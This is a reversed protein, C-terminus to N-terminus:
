NSMAIPILMSGIAVVGPLPKSCAKSTTSGLVASCPKGIIKLEECTKEPAGSANHVSANKVEKRHKRDPQPNETPATAVKKWRRREGDSASKSDSAIAKVPNDLVQNRYCRIGKQTNTTSAKSTRNGIEQWSGQHGDLNLIQLKDTLNNTESVIRDKLMSGSKPLVSRKTCPGRWVPIFHPAGQRLKFRELQGSRAQTAEEEEYVMFDDLVCGDARTYKFLELM